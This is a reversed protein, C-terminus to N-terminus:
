LDDVDCGLVVALPECMKKNAERLARWSEPSEWPPCPVEPAWLAQLPTPEEGAKICKSIEKDEFVLILSVFLWLARMDEDLKQDQLREQALQTPSLPPKLKACLWSLRIATEKAMRYKYPEKKLDRYMRNPELLQAAEKTIMGYRSCMPCALYYDKSLLGTPVEWLHLRVNNGCDCDIYEGVEGFDRVLMWVGEFNVRIIEHKGKM